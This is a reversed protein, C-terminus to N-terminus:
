SGHRYQGSSLLNLVSQDKIRHLYVASKPLWAKLEDATINVPPEGGGVPHAMRGVLTWVHCILHSCDHRDEAMDDKAHMDFAGELTSMARVLKAAANSPYVMTGNCHGMHPVVAGMFSKACNDYEAQLRDLWDPSLVVGDAECWFWPCGQRHMYHAVSQFAWNAAQPYAPIPPVPYCFAEVTEFCADLYRKLETLQLPHVSYDHAIIAKHEWRRRMSAIWKSHEIAQAVDKQCVPFVVVIKTKAAQDPFYKRTLLKILSHTKDRHFLVCDQHLWNLGFANIPSTPLKTEVFVPPLQATGWFHKILDTHSGAEGTMVAAADIDWARPTLPLPAIEDIASAPYVAIGSMIREPLFPQRCEYICGLYKWQGKAYEDNIAALWGPKLPIADPEIYLFPRGNEKAWRAARSWNANSGTPWGKVPKDTSVIVVSAFTRDLLAKLQAVQDFPTGADAVIVMDFQDCGGLLAIWEALRKAAQIDGAHVSLICAIM